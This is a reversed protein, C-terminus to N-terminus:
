QSHRLLAADMRGRRQWGVLGSVDLPQGARHAHLSDQGARHPHRVQLGLLGRVEHGPAPRLRDASVAAHEAGPLQQRCRRLRNEPPLADGVPRQEPDLLRVLQGARDQHHGAGRPDARGGAPDLHAARVQQDRPLAPHLGRDGPSCGGVGGIGRQGRSLPDLRVEDDTRMAQAWRRRRLRLRLNRAWIGDRVGRASSGRVQDEQNSVPCLRVVGPDRLRGRLRVEAARPVELDPGRLRGHHQGEDPAPRLQGAADPARARAAGSPPSRPDLQGPVQVGHVLGRARRHGCGDM